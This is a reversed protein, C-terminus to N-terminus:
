AGEDPNIGLSRLKEALAQARRAEEEARRNAEQIQQAQEAAQRRAEEAQQAQEAAQRRAEEAQRAQEAALRRAEEAQRAQETALRRAEEAQQAQEAALRRAEEAQEAAQKKLMAEAQAETLCLQMERDYLRLYHGEPALWCQLQKSWLWGSQDPTMAVMEHRRADLRWGYLPLPTGRKIPPVYPDYAFYEQVGMRAYKWPKEYIDKQWTEESLIEFIVHPAPGTQGVTWSRLHRFPVGKIVALDPALPYERPNLTQYFNLNNYISCTQGRFLWRLVDFLYDILTVHLSTEGMLDEETPHSDYYYQVQNTMEQAM